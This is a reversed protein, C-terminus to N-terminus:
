SSTFFSGDITLREEVEEEKGEKTITTKILVIKDLEKKIDNIYDILKSTLKEPLKEVLTIRNKFNVDNLNIDTIEEKGEGDVSKISIINIYKVLENIFTTGITNRLDESTNIDEVEQNSRLEKELNYETGITPMSCQLTYVGRDDSITKPGPIKLDKKAAKLIKELSFARKNSEDFEIEVQDSISTSRIKIAIIMKDLITLDDVNIKEDSCNEKLIQRLTYIFETNYIPSDIISKILRKQQSTTLERFMVNKNLSPVWVEYNFSENVRDMLGLVNEINELKETM